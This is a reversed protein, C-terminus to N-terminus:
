DRRRIRPLRRAHRHYGGATRGSGLMIIELDIRRDDGAEALAANAAGVASVLNNCRGEEHPPAAKCRAVITVLDGGVPVEVEVKVEVEKTVVVEVEQTVIVEKETEVVVTEVITQPQCAAAFMAVIILSVFLILLKKTRM